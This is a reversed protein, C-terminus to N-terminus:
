EREETELEKKLADEEKQIKELILNCIGCESQPDHSLMATQYLKNFEPQTFVFQPHTVEVRCVEARKLILAERILSLERYNLELKM